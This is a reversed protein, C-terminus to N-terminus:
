IGGAGAGGWPEARDEHGRMIRDADNRDRDTMGIVTRGRRDVLYAILLGDRRRRRRDGVAAVM